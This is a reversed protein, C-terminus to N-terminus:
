VAYPKWKLTNEDLLISLSRKVREPTTAVFTGAVVVLESLGSAPFNCIDAERMTVDKGIFVCALYHGAFVREM